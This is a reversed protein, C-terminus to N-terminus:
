NILQRSSTDISQDMSQQNEKCHQDRMEYKKEILNRYHNERGTFNLFKETKAINSLASLSLTFM